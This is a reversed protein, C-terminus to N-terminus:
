KKRGELSGLRHDHDKLIETHEELRWQIESRERERAAVKEDHEDQQKKRLNRWQYLVFSGSLVAGILTFAVGLQSLSTPVM